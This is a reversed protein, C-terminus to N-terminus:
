ASIAGHALPYGADGRDCQARFQAQRPDTAANAGARRRGAMGGRRLGARRCRRAASRRAAGRLTAHDDGRARAIKRGQDAAAGSRSRQVDIPHLRGDSRDARAGHRSLACADDQHRGHQRVAGGGSSPVRRHRGLRLEAATGQRAQHSGRCQEGAAVSQGGARVASQRDAGGAGPRQGPRLAAIQVAHRRDRAVVGGDHDHLRRATSKAVFNTAIVTGAGPRNEVVFPKGLRQQLQAALLRTLTDTGGAPAFPVIFTVPRDPYDAADATGSQARAASATMAPLALVLLARRSLQTTTGITM